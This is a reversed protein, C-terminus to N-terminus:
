LRKMFMEHQIVKTTQKYSPNIVIIYSSNNSASFPWEKWEYVTCVYNRVTWRQKRKAYTHSHIDFKRINLPGCLKALMKCAAVAKVVGVSRWLVNNLMWGCVYQLCFLSAFFINLSDIVDLKGNRFCKRGSLPMRTNDSKMERILRSTSTKIIVNLRLCFQQTM